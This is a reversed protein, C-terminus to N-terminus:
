THMAHHRVPPSESESVVRSVISYRVYRVVFQLLGTSHHTCCKYHMIVTSGESVSLVACCLNSYSVTTIGIVQKSFQSRGAMWGDM